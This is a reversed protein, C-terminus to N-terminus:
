VFYRWLAHVLEMLWFFGCASILIMWDTGKIPLFAVAHLSGFERTGALMLVNV